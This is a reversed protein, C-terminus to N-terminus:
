ATVVYRCYITISSGLAYIFELQCFNQMELESEVSSTTERRRMSEILIYEQSKTGDNSTM